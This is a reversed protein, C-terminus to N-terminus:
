TVYLMCTCTCLPIGLVLCTLTGAMQCSVKRAKEVAEEAEWGYAHSRSHPNGYFSTLYPLMADLVRPDQLALM